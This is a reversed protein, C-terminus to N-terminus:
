LWGCSSATKVGANLLRGTQSSLVRDSRDRAFRSVRADPTPLSLRRLRRERCFPHHSPVPRVAADNGGGAHDADPLVTRPRSSPGPADRKSSRRGNPTARRRGKMM